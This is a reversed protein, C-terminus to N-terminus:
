DAGELYTDLAARETADLDLFAIGMGAEDEPGPGPEKNVWVVRGRTRVALDAGPLVFSLWLVEDPEFLLESKLFVGGASFDRSDFQLAGDLTTDGVRIEVELLRRPHRRHEPGGTV